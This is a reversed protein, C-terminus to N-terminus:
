KGYIVEYDGCKYSHGEWEGVHEVTRKDEGICIEEPVTGLCNTPICLASLFEKTIESKKIILYKSPYYEDGNKYIYINSFYKIEDVETKNCVEYKTMCNDDMCSLNDKCLKMCKIYSDGHFKPNYIINCENKYIHYNVPAQYTLIIIICIVILGLIFGLIHSVTLYNIYEHVYYDRREKMWNYDNISKEYLKKYNKKM